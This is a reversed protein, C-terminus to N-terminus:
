CWIVYLFHAGSDNACLPGPPTSKANMVRDRLRLDGHYRRVLSDEVERTINVDAQLLVRMKSFRHKLAHGYKPNDWRYTPDSTIGIYFSNGCQYSQKTVIADCHAFGEAFDGYHILMHQYCVSPHSPRQTYLQVCARAFTNYNYDLTRLQANEGGHAPVPCRSPFPSARAPSSKALPLHFDSPSESHAQLVLDLLRTKKTNNEDIVEPMSSGNMLGDMAFEAFEMKSSLDTDSSAESSKVSKALLQNDGDVEDDSAWLADELRDRFTKGNTM